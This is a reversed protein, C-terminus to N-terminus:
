SQLYKLFRKAQYETLNHVNNELKWDSMVLQWENNNFAPDISKIMKLEREERAKILRLMDNLMPVYTAYDRFDSGLNKSTIAYEIFLSNLFTLNIFEDEYIKFNVKIKPEYSSNYGVNYEKKTSVFVNWVRQYYEHYVCQTKGDIEHDLGIKGSGKYFKSDNTAVDERTILNIKKIGPDLHSSSALDRYGDMSNSRNDSNYSNRWGNGSTPSWGSLGFLVYIDDGKQHKVTRKKDYYNPNAEYEEAIIQEEMPLRSYKKLLTTFDPFRNDSLWGDAMSLVIYPSKIATLSEMVNVKEPLQILKGDDLIGQLVSFLIYRSAFEGQVRKKEKNVMDIAKDVEKERSWDIEEKARAEKEIVKSKLFMDEPLKITSEDLWTLYLNEGNRVLLGLLQGHLKEYSSLVNSYWGSGHEKGMQYGRGSKSMKILSISKESSAFVDVLDSRYKLVNEFLDQDFDDGDVGSISLWRGLEEDLYRMKQFLVVPTEKPANKGSRVKIFNVTEGLYGMISNIDTELYFIQTEMESIKAQLEFRKKNVQTMLEDTKRYLEQEKKRIEEKIKALEESKGWSIDELEKKQQKAAELLKEKENELEEKSVDQKVLATDSPLVVEGTIAKIESISKNSYDPFFEAEVFHDPIIYRMKGEGFSIISVMEDRYHLKFPLMNENSYNALELFDDLESSRFHNKTNDGQFNYRNFFCNIDDKLITEQARMSRYEMNEQLHDRLGSAQMNDFLGLYSELELFLRQIFKERNVEIKENTLWQKLGDIDRVFAKGVTKTFFKKAM